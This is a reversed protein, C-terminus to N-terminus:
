IIRHKEIKALIVEDRSMGAFKLLNLYVGFLYNFYSIVSDLNSAEEKSRIKRVDVTANTETSIDNFTSHEIKVSQEVAKIALEMIAATGELHAIITDVNSDRDYHNLGEYVFILRDLITHIQKWYRIKLM